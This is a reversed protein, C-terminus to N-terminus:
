RVIERWYIVAPPRNTKFGKTRIGGDAPPNSGGVILVGQGGDGMMLSAESPMGIGLDLSGIIGGSALNGNFFPEKLSGGTFANLVNVYGTGGPQCPDEAEPIISSVILTPETLRYARATTVVREGKKLNGVVWDLFWGQKNQMDTVKGDANRTADKFIRAPKGDLTTTSEFGREKLNARSSIATGNDILGYLSQVSKDNLDAQQFYSGTGFFVFRKGVNDDGLLYNTASTIKSTIPQLTGDPAKAIFFNSGSWGSSSGSSLDFKWVNGKLDGAYVRDITGNGDLDVEGPAAMGSSAENDPIFKRIVAGTSLQFVYLAAKGSSSNYGNGLLIAHQGSNLRAYVPTGLMLGLETDSSATYEWAINNESFSAPDTVDLAFVGKGGLGLSGVLYTKNLGSASKRVLTLEGDVYFRHQYASDSYEKLNPIVASPVFAFREVGTESNFAHLMGDNAGVYVTKTDPDYVPSSHHIDGLLSSRTRLSGGNKTEKSQDGRLYNVIDESGLATRDTSSLSSWTFERKNGGTVTYIKRSSASPISAKWAFTTTGDAAVRRAELEGAWGAPDYKPVFVMSNSNIQNGTVTVSAASGKREVIDKLMATLAQAFETPNQASFFAGRGNVAAHLLDDIKGPNTGTGPWTIASGSNIANFATNPDISGQVGLGVTFTTMHQWFAPDKSSTPVANNIDTRLDNKWYHMAVDALTNSASDNFPSKAKYTYKQNNVGTIQTGDTNDVNGFGSVSDSYYGDTMLITYSQRCSLDSGGNQGPTTSWPGKDDTRQYYKGAANLAGLLPTGANPVVREYLDKFFQTRDTKEFKRVGSIIVGTNVGDVSSSAKNITGFGVRLGTDQASFARGVGARATLVRSRYYTYWNAFNQIEQTYTCVGATCDTRKERGHGSYTTTTSKIETKTYNSKTWVDGGKHWFYTAPWYSRQSNNDNSSLSCDSASSCSVWRVNNQRTNSVQATLNRCGKATLMPNHPACTPSAPDHLSGDPKSWPTYTVGPNYYITNQQPSRAVMNYTNDSLVDPVYNNYDSGGYVGNERPFIYRADRLILDEPMIEFQMSGSDDLIMMINPETTISTQLPVNPIDLAAHAPLLTTLGFCLATLRALHRTTPRPTKM